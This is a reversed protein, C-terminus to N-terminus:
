LLPCGQKSSTHLRQYLALSSDVENERKGFPSRKDKATDVVASTDSLRRWVPKVKSKNAESSKSKKTHVCKVGGTRQTDAMRLYIFPRDSGPGMEVWGLDFYFVFLFGEEWDDEWWRRKERVCM